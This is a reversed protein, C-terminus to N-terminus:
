LRAAELGRVQEVDLCIQEKLAELSPFDWEPRLRKWFELHCSRGYLSGGPYDLLHAELTRTKGNVAPRMGISIAATYRGESCCFRGGYVGDAPLALDLSRGINATPFGLERGLRQGPVVIGSVKYSRGLLTEAQEVDGSSVSLRIATSSVRKGDLEFAPVVETPLHGSLWSGTGERGKGMAFDHGLVISSARLRGQLIERLFEDASMESLMKDFPLIAAVSVGLRAFERLNDELSSLSKPQSGPRLTAMPHRDFTVLICPQEAGYAREVARRIVAQHGLHVGDFTGVCAVASPWEASLAGLGFHVQM